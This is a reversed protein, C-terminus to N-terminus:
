DRNFRGELVQRRMDVRGGESQEDDLTTQIDSEIIGSENFKIIRKINNIYDYEGKEKVYRNEYYDYVYLRELKEGGTQYWEKKIIMDDKYYDVVTRQQNKYETSKIINGKADYEVKFYYNIYPLQSASVENIFRVKYETNFYERDWDTHYKTIIKEDKGYKYVPMGTNIRDFLAAYKPDLKTKVLTMMPFTVTLVVEKNDVVIALKDGMQYKEAAKPIAIVIEKSASNKQYVKGLPSGVIAASLFNESFLLVLIFAFFKSLKKM